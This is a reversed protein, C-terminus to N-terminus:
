HTYKNWRSVQFIENKEGGDIDNYNDKMMQALMTYNQYMFKLMDQIDKEEEPTLGRMLYHLVFLRLEVALEPTESNNIDYADEMVTKFIQYM